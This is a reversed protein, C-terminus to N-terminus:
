TLKGEKRFAQQHPTGYKSLYAVPSRFPKAASCGSCLAWQPFAHWRQCPNQNSGQVPDAVVLAANFMWWCCDMTVVFFVDLCGIFIWPWSHSVSVLFMWFYGFMWYFDMTVVLLYLFWGFTWCFLGHDSNLSVLFCGFIDLFGMYFCGFFFVILCIWPWWLTVM